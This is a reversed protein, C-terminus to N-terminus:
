YAPPNKTEEWARAIIEDFGMDDLDSNHNPYGSDVIPFTFGSLSIGSYAKEILDFILTPSIESQNNEDMFLKLAQSPKLKEDNIRRCFREVTDAPYKTILAPEITYLNPKDNM